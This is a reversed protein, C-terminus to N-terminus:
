KRIKRVAFTCKKKIRFVYPLFNIKQVIFLPNKGYFYTNLPIM